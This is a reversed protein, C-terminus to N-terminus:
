APPNGTSGNASHGVIRLLTKQVVRRTRGPPAPRLEGHCIMRFLPHRSLRLLRSAEAAAPFRPGHPDPPDPPGGV